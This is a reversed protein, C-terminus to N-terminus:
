ESGRSAPKYYRLTIPPTLYRVKAIVAMFFVGLPTPYTPRATVTLRVVPNHDLTDTNDLTPNMVGGYAQADM